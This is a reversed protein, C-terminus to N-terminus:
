SGMNGFDAELQPKRKATNQTDPFPSYHGAESFCQAVASAFEPNIPERLHDRVEPLQSNGARFYENSM